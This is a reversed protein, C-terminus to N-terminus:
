NLDIAAGKIAVNGGANVEVNGSAQVTASGAAQVTVAGSAQIALSNVTLTVADPTLTISQGATDQICIEGKKLRIREGDKEIIVADDDCAEKVLPNPQSFLGVLAVANTLDFKLDTDSEAQTRWTDLAQESFLLLCEDGPKIPYAFTATQGSGQMVYVPVGNIQPYDLQSGDPLKFKGYPLVDAECKDPNFSIIKGPLATHVERLVEHTANKMEQTFEQVM